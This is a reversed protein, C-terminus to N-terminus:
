NSEIEFAVYKAHPFGNSKIYLLVAKGSKSVRLPKNEHTLTEHEKGIWVPYNNGTKGKSIVYESGKSTTYVKFTKSEIDITKGTFSTTDVQFGTRQTKQQSLVVNQASISTNFSVFLVVILFFVNKM